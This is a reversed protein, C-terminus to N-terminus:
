QDEGYKKFWNIYWDNFSNFDQANKYDFVDSVDHIFEKIKLEKTICFHDGNGIAYIPIPEYHKILAIEKGIKSPSFKAIAKEEDYLGDHFIRWDADTLKDVTKSDLVFDSLDSYSLDKPATKYICSAKKFVTNLKNDDVKSKVASKVKRAGRIALNLGITDAVDIKETAVEDTLGLVYAAEIAKLDSM